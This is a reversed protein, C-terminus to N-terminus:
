TKWRVMVPTLLKIKGGNTSLSYLHQWGDKEWPFVLQSEGTWWLLNEEVPIDSLFVSGRGKDAKWLERSKGTSFDFTRISWPSGERVPVFPIVNNMNPIRIYALQKGDPSWPLTFMRTWVQRLMLLPNLQLIIFGSLLMIM